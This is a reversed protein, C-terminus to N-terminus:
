KPLPTIFHIGRESDHRVVVATEGRVCRADNLTRVNLLLPAGDTRIEAQGFEPTAESTLITCRQGIIQVQEDRERMLVRFLPRFPMTIYRTAVISVLFNPVLAALALLESGGTFYHNAMMSCTWLCLALVSAVMTLPVHGVNLFALAGWWFGGGEAGAEKSLHHAKDGIYPHPDGPVFPHGAVDTEMHADGHVDMHAEGNVDMHADHHIDHHFDTHLDVDGDGFLHVDVFGLAVMGWYLIVVGLLLTFPLNVASISETLVEQM